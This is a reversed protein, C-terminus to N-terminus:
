IQALKIEKELASRVLENLSMNKINAYEAASRHLHTDIQINISGSYPKEAQKGIGECHQLYDDVAKRFSSELLSYSTAEYTILDEIYLIHGQMCDDDLSARYSGSYGKYNFYNSM